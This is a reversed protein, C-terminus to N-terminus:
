KDKLIEISFFGMYGCELCAKSYFNMSGQSFELSGTRVANESNTHLSSVALQGNPLNIPVFKLSQCHPCKTIEKIM